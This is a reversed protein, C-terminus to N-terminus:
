ITQSFNKSSEQERLYFDFSMAVNRMFAKGLESLEIHDQTVKLIGDEQFANMEKKIDTWYPIEGMNNLNVENNCMLDQIVQQVLLDREHHAHGKEIALLGSQIKEQYTKLDKANQIFSMSSDSISTPGLGILVSSKKDVYGMFNRHLNKHEKAQYLYSSPLAFHDMGVDSYGKEGLLRKGTEYLKRKLEPSPLDETKILRQNKLREPLHAYSYFAILDPRMESVLAITREISENTQKPLGYILDFNISTIGHDKMTQGLNRVMEPSQDRHIAKQVTEDFDQVGLSARKIQNKALVRVHEVTCTRPDVEISGIFSSTRNATLGQILRDLNEPSLFTPTGGGFHLSSILPSFGLKDKYLSWEKLLTEVYGEEVSHNKTIVRSCGCYYCLSECFPVHVYLDLGQKPDYQTKIHGIWQSESPTGRWFPVPPYSTYRPGPINYKQILQVKKLM